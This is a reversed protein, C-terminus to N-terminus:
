ARLPATAGYWVFRELIGAIYAVWLRVPIKDVVHLLDRVEDETAVRGDDDSDALSRIADVVSPADKEPLVEPNKDIYSSSILAGPDTDDGADRAPPAMVLRSQSDPEASVVASGNVVSM